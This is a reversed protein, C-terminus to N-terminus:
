SCVTVRLAGLERAKATAWKKADAYSCHSPASLEEAPGALYIFRFIWQGIGRPKRGHSFEFENTNIEIM